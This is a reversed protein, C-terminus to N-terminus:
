QGTIIQIYGTLPKDPIFNGDVRNEYVTCTYYYTGDALKSGNFNTGNWNIEPNETSFVLQGWRNLIEMEIRDIFRNITPVFLDNSGDDNPTFTNPLQYLPCNDVCVEPGLASENGSSDISTLAYCGSISTTLQHTFIPEDYRQTAILDYEASQDSRYYINIKDLDNSRTCTVDFIWDIQNELPDNPNIYDQECQTVVQVKPACPAISDTPVSCVVQSYNLLPDRVDRLGYRGSSEIQFCYEVGNQLNEITYDQSSTTGIFEQDTNNVIEYVNYEFNNWPVNETWSLNIRLDKGIASAFVSSATSSMSLTTINNSFTVRYSYVDTLTNLNSDLFLTDGILGSYTDSIFRADPVDIYNAGNQDPSRQLQIIYPGANTITDIEDPVPLTWNIEIIGAQIDTNSVSVKTILPDKRDFRECSENSPLSKTRNYLNQNQTLLAYEGLVRYCYIDHDGVEMDTVVYRDGEKQNTLFIIPEYGQGELGGQCTDITIEKSGNRRWVSFGQFLPDDDCDYPSEWSIRIGNSNIKEAVVDEPAPGVVKIRVTKLTALGSEDDFFNDSAKFVVQYAEESIHNCTTQWSFIGNALSSGEINIVSFNAKNQTIEFPGGLATLFITQLSDADTAVVEFEIKEGAIVCIENLSEIVPPVNMDQCSRVLIQMDRIIQNILIGERYEKILITLNFEGQVKPSDWTIDGTIPDLTLLNNPGSSIEDPFNYNPVEVGEAQFPSILEYAISDGDPDYANPNHTFIQDVCAFDIPPQLLIASSNKGQFRSDLLTLTTELYFQINVSNPFDINLIGAIRNPDTVSLKYSSRTPYTHEKVYYNVKIDNPLADGTGNVRPVFSSTGDGWFIELSDRDAAFSSTRTYTTITARITLNDLQEYTIEGARNHTAFLPFCVVFSLLQLLVFRYIKNSTIV